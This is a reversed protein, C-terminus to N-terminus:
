FMAYIFQPANESLLIIMVLLAFLSIGFIADRLLSIFANKIKGAKMGVNEKEPLGFRWAMKAWNLNANSSHAGFRCVLM